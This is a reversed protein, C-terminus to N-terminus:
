DLPTSGFVPREPWAADLYALIAVSETLATGSHVLTPVQGRPNLALYDVTRNGGNDTHLRRATYPIGKAWLALTVRWAPPSGSIFYLEPRDM